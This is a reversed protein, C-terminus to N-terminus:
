EGGIQHRKEKAEMYEQIDRTTHELQHQLRELNRLVEVETRLPLDSSAQDPPVRPSVMM